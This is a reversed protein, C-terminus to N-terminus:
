PYPDPESFWVRYDQAFLFYSEDTGAQFHEDLDRDDSLSIGHITSSDAGVTVLMSPKTDLALRVQERIANANSKNTSCGTIQILAESWGSHGLMHHTPETSIRQYALWPPDDAAAPKFPRIKSAAVLATLGAFGTLLSRVANEVALQAM